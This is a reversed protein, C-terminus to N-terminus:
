LRLIAAAWIPDMSLWTLEDCFIFPKDVALFFRSSFFTLVNTMMIAANRNQRIGYGVAMRTAFIYEVEDQRVCSNKVMRPSNVVTFETM